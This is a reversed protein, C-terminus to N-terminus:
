IDVNRSTWAESKIKDMEMEPVVYKPPVRLVCRSFTETKRSLLSSPPAFPLFISFKSPPFGFSRRGPPPFTQRGPIPSFLIEFVFTSLYVEEALVTIGARLSLYIWNSVHCRTDPILPRFEIGLIAKQVLNSEFSYIYIVFNSFISLSIFFFLENERIEISNKSFDVLQPINSINPSEVRLM